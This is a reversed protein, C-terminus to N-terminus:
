RRPCDRKMHRPQHCHFCTMSGSQSPTRIHGQSKYSRGQGQFGRSISAKLKKGLSSSPQGKKRKDSSVLVRTESAGHM